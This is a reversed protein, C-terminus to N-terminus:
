HRKRDLEIEEEGNKIRNKKRRGCCCCLCELFSYLFAWAMLFAVTGIFAMFIVFWAISYNDKFPEIKAIDDISFGVVDEVQQQINSSM